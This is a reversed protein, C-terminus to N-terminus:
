ELIEFSVQSIGDVLAKAQIVQRRQCHVIDRVLRGHWVVVAFLVLARLGLIIGAAAIGASGFGHSPQGRMRLATHSGQTGKVPQKAIRLEMELLDVRFQGLDCACMLQGKFEKVDKM